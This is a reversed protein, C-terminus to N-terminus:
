TKAKKFGARIVVKELNLSCDSMSVGRLIVEREEVVKLLKYITEGKSNFKEFDRAIAEAQLDSVAHYSYKETHELGVPMLKGFDVSYHAFYTKKEKM